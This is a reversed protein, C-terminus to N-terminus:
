PKANKAMGHLPLGYFVLAKIDDRTAAVYSGVRAGFSKGVLIPNGYKKSWEIAAILEQMEKKGGASPAPRNGIYGFNYRLAIFGLEALAASTKELLPTDMGRGAGHSIIVPGRTGAGATIGHLGNGFEVKTEKM